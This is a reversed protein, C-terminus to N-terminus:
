QATVLIEYQPALEVKFLEAIEGSVGFGPLRDQPIYVSADQRLPMIRIRLPTHLIQPVFRRIGIEWPQRYYFDDHILREALYARAVDGAYHIGLHAESLGDLADAPITIEWEGARQFDADDPAMAVKKGMKVPQSPQTPCLQRCSVAISKAPVSLRHREFVGDADAPGADLKQPPPFVSFDMQPRRSQLRLTQGEFIPAADSLFIRERGWIDAKYCRRSQEHTLVLVDVARGDRGRLKLLCDTGPKLARLILLGDSEIREGIPGEASAIEGAAFALEPEIGSPAFFIFCPRDAELRCLPQATAHHLRIGRLDMEFPWIMYSQGEIRVPRSPIKLKRGPLRLTLKVNDKVALGDVRHYNNIFVFGSRGDTRVAWRLTTKDDVGSPLVAPLVAAMPALLEGFDNLFLNLTRLAHYTERWQGYAGLPGQYDYDIVPMDNPYGSALSEQLTSLKGTPNRGGHYMFYGQLNCGCGIKITSLAAVDDAEVIPRRHYSVQMGGGIECTGYPYDNLISADVPGKSAQLDAGITTDDRDLLFFYHKASLDKAWTKVQRDWAADAYGGFLPLVERAPFDVGGWGTVTYLPVNLGSEEAIMRLTRLHECQGRLENDLQVGIVPGGDQWLLGRLQQGIRGYLRRVFTLYPEANRRIEKGCRALVWDPLGGNRAEGHVWPGLRPFCFLGCRGCLEAFGRLNLDGSFDFQGEIEEHHIWFIYSSVVQVGGARMKRLEIEWEQHPYRSFHFEGMVPLWARGDLTLYRSNAGIERGQPDRGGMRLHGRRVSLNPNTLDIVCDARKLKNM